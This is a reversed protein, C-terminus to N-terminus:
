HPSSSSHTRCTQEPGQLKVNLEAIVAAPLISFKPGLDCMSVAPLLNFSCPHLSSSTRFGSLLSIRKLHPSMPLQPLSQSEPSLVTPAPLALPERSPFSPEMGKIEIFTPGSGCLRIGM